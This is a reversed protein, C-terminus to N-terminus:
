LHRLYFLSNAARLRLNTAEDLGLVRHFLCSLLQKGNFQISLSSFVGVWWVQPHREWFHYKTQLQLLFLAPLNTYRSTWMYVILWCLRGHLSSHYVITKSKQLWYQSAILVCDACRWVTLQCVFAQHSIILKYAVEVKPPVSTPLM